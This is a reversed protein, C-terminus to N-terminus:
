HYHIRQQQQYTRISISSRLQSLVGVSTPAPNFICLQCEEVDLCASLLQNRLLEDSMYLAGQIKTLKDFLLELCETKPKDPNERIIRTLTANHWESLYVNRIEETEFYQKMLSVMTQFDIPPNVNVEWLRDFYFSLAQDKLMIPFVGAFHSQPIRAKHCSDRFIRLKYELADYMGGGYKMDDNAYLCNLFELQTPSLMHDPVTQSVTPPVTPTTTTSSSLSTRQQWQGALLEVVTPPPNRINDLFDPNKIHQHFTKSRAANREIETDSWLRFTDRNVVNFINRGVCSGSAEVYVGYALLHDRFKKIIYPPAALFTEEPWDEFDIKFEYWLSNGTLNRERYREIFFVIVSAIQEKTNDNATPDFKAWKGWTAQDVYSLFKLPIPFILRDDSSTSSFSM